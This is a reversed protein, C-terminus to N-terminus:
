AHRAKAWIAFDVLNGPMEGYLLQREEDSSGDIVGSKKNAKKAFVALGAAVVVLGLVIAFNKKM